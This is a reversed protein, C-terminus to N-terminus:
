VGGDAEIGADAETGADTEATGGDPDLPNSVHEGCVPVEDIVCIGTEGEGKECRRTPLEGCGELEPSACGLAAFRERLEDYRPGNFQVNVAFACSEGIFQRAPEGCVPAEVTGFVARCESDDSCSQSSAALSAAEVALEACEADRGSCGASVSLVLLALLLRM